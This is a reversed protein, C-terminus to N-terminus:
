FVVVGYFELQGIADKHVTVHEVGELLLLDEEVSDYSGVFLVVIELEDVFSKFFAPIEDLIDHLSVVSSPINSTQNLSIM